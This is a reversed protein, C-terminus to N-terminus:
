GRSAEAAMDREIEDVMPGAWRGFLAGCVLLIGVAAMHPLNSLWVARGLPYRYVVVV